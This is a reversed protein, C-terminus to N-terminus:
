NQSRATDRLLQYFQFMEYASPIGSNTDPHLEVMATKIIRDIQINKPDTNRLRELFDTKLKDILAVSSSDLKRSPITAVLRSFDIMTQQKEIDLRSIEAELKDVPQRQIPTQITNEIELSEREPVASTKVGDTERAIRESIKAGSATQM